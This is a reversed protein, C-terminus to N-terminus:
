FHGSLLVLPVYVALGFFLACAFVGAVFVILEEVLEALLEILDRM